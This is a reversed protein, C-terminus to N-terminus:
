KSAQAVAAPTALAKLADHVATKQDTAVHNMVAFTGYGGIIAGVILVLVHHEITSMVASRNIKRTESKTSEAM